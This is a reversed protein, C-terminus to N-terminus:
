KYIEYINVEGVKQLNERVYKLVNEPTQWNLRYDQNIILFIENEKRNKIDEIIGNEGDKGINGKLFMDYNKNYINLPIMYIAGEADLVYVKNGKEKENLIYKDIETIRSRINEEIRINKFHLIETNKESKFYNLINLITVYIIGALILTVLLLSIIKYIKFKNKLKIKDYIFKVVLAIIYLMCIVLTFSGILFHIVDSIPYMVIIISLGYSWLIVINKIKENKKNLIRAIIGMVAISIIFYPMIKSFIKIEIKSNKLLLKYPLKNSFTSIGLIAYNIFDIFSNTVLLYFVFITVPILIGCIRTLAIRLYSIIEKKNKIFLVKYGVVVM